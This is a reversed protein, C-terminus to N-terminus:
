NDEYVIRMYKRVEERGYTDVLFDIFHELQETSDDVRAIRIELLNPLEKSPDTIIQQAQIELIM